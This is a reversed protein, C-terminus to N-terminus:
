QSTSPLDQPPQPPPTPPTHSPISPKTPVTPFERHATTDDGQAVNGATAEEFLPTEVRSFGKRVRRM